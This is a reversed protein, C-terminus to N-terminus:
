KNMYWDLYKDWFRKKVESGGEPFGLRVYAVQPDIDLNDLYRFARLTKSESNMYKSLKNDSVKALNLHFSFLGRDGMVSVENENDAASEKNRAKGKERLSRKINGSDFNETQSNTRFSPTADSIKSDTAVSVTDVVELLGVVVALFAQRPLHM